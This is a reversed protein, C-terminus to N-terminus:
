SSAIIRDPLVRELRNDDPAQPHRALSRRPLRDSSTTKAVMGICANLIVKQLRSNVLVM